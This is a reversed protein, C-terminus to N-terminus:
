DLHFCRVVFREVCTIGGDSRYVFLQMQLLSFIDIFSCRSAGGGGDEGLCVLGGEASIEM